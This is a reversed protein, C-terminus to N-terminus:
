RRVAEVTVQLFLLVDEDQLPTRSQDEAGSLVHHLLAVVAAERGTLAGPIMDEIM